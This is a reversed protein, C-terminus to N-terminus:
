EPVGHEDWSPSAQKKRRRADQVLLLLFLGVAGLLIGNRGSLYTLAGLALIVLGYYSHAAELLKGVQRILGTESSPELPRYKREFAVQNREKRRVTWYEALHKVGIWVLWFLPLM